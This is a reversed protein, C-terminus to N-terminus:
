LFSSYHLLNKFVDATGAISQSANPFQVITTLLDESRIMENYQDQHNLVSFLVTKKKEVM